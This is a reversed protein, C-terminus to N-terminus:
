EPGATFALIAPKREPDDLWEILRAGDPRQRLLVVDEHLRRYFDQDDKRSM